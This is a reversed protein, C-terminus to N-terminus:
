VVAAGGDDSRPFTKGCLKKQQRAGESSAEDAIIFLRFDPGLGILRPTSFSWSFNEIKALARSAWPTQTVTARQCKTLTNMLTAWLALPQFNAIWEAPLTNDMDFSRLVASSAHLTDARLAPALRLLLAVQRLRTHLSSTLAPVDDTSPSGSDCLAALTPFRSKPFTRVSLKEFRSPPGGLGWDPVPARHGSSVVDFSGTFLEYRLTWYKNSKGADGDDMSLTHYLGDFPAITLIRESFKLFMKNGYSFAGNVLPPLLIDLYPAQSALRNHTIRHRLSEGLRHANLPETPSSFVFDGKDVRYSLRFAPANMQTPHRLLFTAANKKRRCCTASSAM